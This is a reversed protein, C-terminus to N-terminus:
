TRRWVEGVKGSGGEVEKLVMKRKCGWGLEWLLFNKLLKCDKERGSKDGKERGKVGGGQEVKGKVVV